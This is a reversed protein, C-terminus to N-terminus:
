ALLRCTWPTRYQPPDWRDVGPACSAKCSAWQDDKEYCRAGPDSCCRTHRCDEGSGSCQRATLGCMVALEGDSPPPEERLSARVFNGSRSLECVSWGGRGSAGPVLASCSEAKDSIAWNADSIGRRGLFDLWRKTEGLDLAGDGSAECTGWETAFVAIGNDLAREVSERLGQGSTSMYFHLTYAVNVGAVPDKSAEEVQTSWLRTGLIVLNDTHQRIVGVVAEHYPKIMASWAQKVPENFLEFLVNPHGGYKAAMEGFFARSQELHRDANHDHWDVIVYVGAQAAADVVAEVRTREAWPDSLYGGHEVAMAARVLSVRWDSALWAVLDGNWFQPMWQSWFLSMGRLRVPSGTKESVIKNGSVRLKGYREVASGTRRGLEGAKSGTKAAVELVQEGPMQLLLHEGNSVCAGGEAAGALCAPGGQAHAAAAALSLWAPGFCAAAKCSAFM